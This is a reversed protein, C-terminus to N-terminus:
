YISNHVIHILIPLLMGYKVRAYALVTGMALQVLVIIPIYIYQIGELPFNSAHVLGFILISLYLLIAQHNQWLNNLKNQIAQISVLTFASVFVGFALLLEFILTDDIRYYSSKIVSNLIFYAFVSLSVSLSLRSFKLWYRYAFEEVIPAIISSILFAWIPTLKTLGAQASNRPVDFFITFGIVIVIAFLCLVEHLALVKLFDVIIKKRKIPQSTKGTRLFGTFDIILSKM